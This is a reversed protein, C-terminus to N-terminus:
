PVRLAALHARRVWRDVRGHHPARGTPVAIGELDHHPRMPRTEHPDGTADHAVVRQGLVDDLVGEDVDPPRKRAQLRGLSECRPRGPDDDPVRERSRAAFPPPAPLRDAPVARGRGLVRIL